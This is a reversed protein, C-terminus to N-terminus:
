IRIDIGGSPSQTQQEEEAEGDQKKRKKRRREKEKEKETQIKAHETAETAQTEALKQTNANQQLNEAVRQEQEGQGPRTQYSREVAPTQTHVTQFDVSRM